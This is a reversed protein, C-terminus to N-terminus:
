FHSSTSIKARKSQSRQFRCLYWYPLTLSFNLIWNSFSVTHYLLPQICYSSHKVLYFLITRKSSEVMDPNSKIHMKAKNNNQGDNRTYYYMMMIQTLHCWRNTPDTTIIMVLLWLRRCIELHYKGKPNQTNLSNLKFDSHHSHCCPPSSPQFQLVVM